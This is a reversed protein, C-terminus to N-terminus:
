MMCMFITTVVFSSSGEVTYITAIGKSYIHALLLLMWVTKLSVYMKLERRDDSATKM